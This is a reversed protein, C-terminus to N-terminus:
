PPLLVGALGVLISLWGVLFGLDRSAAKSGFGHRLVLGLAIVFPAAASFFLPIYEAHNRFQNVSHALVIDGALVALNSATFLELLLEPNWLWGLASGRLLSQLRSNTRAM